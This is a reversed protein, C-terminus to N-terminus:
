ATFAGSHAPSGAHPSAIVSRHRVASGCWKKMSTSGYRRTLRQQAWASVPSSGAAAAASTSCTTLAVISSEGIYPALWYQAKTASLQQGGLPRLFGAGGEVLGVTEGVDV